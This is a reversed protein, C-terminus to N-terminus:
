VALSTAIGLNDKFKSYTPSVLASKSYSGSVSIDFSFIDENNVKVDIGIRKNYTINRITGASRYGGVYGLKDQCRMQFIVPVVINNQTGPQLSKVALTTSGEVQISLHNSPAMFLYAGCTYKGILFEDDASFGLKEPYAQNSGNAGYNTNLIKNYALQQYSKQQSTIAPDLVDSPSVWFGAAHRFEPYNFGVTGTPPQTPRVLSNFTGQSGSAENILTPHSIHICYENLIGGGAPTTLPLNGGVITTTYTGRWVSPNSIGTVATPDFPIMAGLNMPIGNVGFAPTYTFGVPNSPTFYLDADFGVSKYRPYIFQSNSNASQYPASHIYSKDGILGSTISTSKISTLSIPTLDYKRFDKYDPTAKPDTNDLAIVSQGGPIISALELPSATENRLEVTYTKTIIKGRNSLNTLDLLENYYGAFLEVVTGRKVPISNTGDNIYVTLVGKAVTIMAKLSAIEQDMALIKQYLDLSKGSSDYFGSSIVNSVHAYYKDGTNFSTSLHSDLGRATLDQQVSILIKDKENQSIYQSNPNETSKEQPFDVIIPASFDSELPNSPWGAESISAVKIEVQEGATIPIDLQNINPVDSNLVDEDSWYYKGTTSNYAKKRIDTKYETWNSYSGKRQTGDNDSFKIEDTAPANGQKTLYRYRVRFQIVEQMGTKPNDVGAPIPWFGRVRYKPSEKVEPASDSINNLDQITTQLLSTKTAKEKTLSDIKNIISERASNSYKSVSDNVLNALENRAQDISKNLAEIENQIKTKTQVTTTFKDATTTQTIQKNIQVVQFNSSNLTPTNPKLGYVSPIFKEKSNSLFQTGFDSVYSKYYNDLTMLGESTNITMENSYFIVGKSYASGTVHFDDNIAKIFVAQREDHGVNVNVQLPSLIESDLSLAESGIPVPEYGSIRKLVVTFESIDIATIRFKSGNKTMLRDGVKLQRNGSNTNAITDYYTITDLKYKRVNENIVQGGVTLPVTTDFVRLVSFKGNYRIVQLPLDEPNEDIFYTINQSQLEKMFELDTLDNRGKLNSDFYNRQADTTINAIIRKIFVRKTGSDIQGDLNFSVFLLPNLFSEFFYNSRYKFNTPVQLNTPAPPDILPTSQYIRSVTGDSNRVNANNDDLGSLAKINEDLRKIESIIYGWSPISITSTQNNDDLFEVSVTDQTSTTANSLKNIIELSNKQLRLFQALLSSISNKTGAM